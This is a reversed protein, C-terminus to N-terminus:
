LRARFSNDNVIDEMLLAIHLNDSERELCTGDHDVNYGNNDISFYDIM